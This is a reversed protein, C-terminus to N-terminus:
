NVIDGEKVSNKNLILEDFISITKIAESDEKLYINSNNDGTEIYSYDGAQKIEFIPKFEVIGGKNKIYVGDQDDQTTIARKPIKLVDRESKILEVMAVRQDYFKYMMTNFKVVIVANNGDKNINIINGEIQSNDEHMRIKVRQNIDLDKIDEIKEIKIAMYWQFDDLLKYIAQGVSVNKDEEIKEKKSEKDKFYDKSDLKKYTYKEFEIPLYVNEYGDLIYSIIGGNQTYYKINSTNIEQSIKERRDKLSDISSNSLDDSSDGDKEKKEYLSLEEKFVNINNYDKNIINDQIEEIKEQRLDELDQSEGQLIDVEAESQELSLIAQDIELVERELSSSEKLSRISAIEIGAGVRSGEKATKKFIGETDSKILKESRIFFGEGSVSEVLLERNPLSTKLGGSIVNLMPKLFLYALLFVLILSVKKRRRRKKQVRTYSM